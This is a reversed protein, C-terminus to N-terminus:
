IKTNHVAKLLGRADLGDLIRFNLLNRYDRM